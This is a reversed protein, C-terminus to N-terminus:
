PWQQGRNYFRTIIGGSYEINNQTALTIENKMNFLLHFTIYHHYILRDKMCDVIYKTLGKGGNVRLNYEDTFSEVYKISVSELNGTFLELKNNKIIYHMEDSVMSFDNKLDKRDTFKFVLNRENNVCVFYIYMFDCNSHSNVINNFNNHDIQFYINALDTNKFYEFYRCKFYKFEAESIEEFVRAPESEYKIRWYECTNDLELNGM